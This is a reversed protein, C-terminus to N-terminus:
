RLAIVTDSGSALVLNGIARADRSCSVGTPLRVQGFGTRSIVNAWCADSGRGLSIVRGDTTVTVKTRPSIPAATQWATQGTTADIATVLTKRSEL